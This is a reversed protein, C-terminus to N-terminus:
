VVRSGGAARCTVNLCNCGSLCWRRWCVFRLLSSFHDLLQSFQEGETANDSCMYLYGDRVGSLREFEVYRSHNEPCRLGDVCFAFEM